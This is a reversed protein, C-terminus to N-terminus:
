SPLLRCRIDAAATVPPPLQRRCRRPGETDAPRCFSAAAAILAALISCIHLSHSHSKRLEAYSRNCFFMPSIEWRTHSIEGPIKPFPFFDISKSVTTVTNTTNHKPTITCLWPLYPPAFILSFHENLVRWKMAHPRSLIENWKFFSYKIGVCFLLAFQITGDMRGSFQTKADFITDFDFILM